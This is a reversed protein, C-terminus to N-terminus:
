NFYRFMKFVSQSYTSHDNQFPILIFFGKFNPSKQYQIFSFNTEQDKRKTQKLVLERCQVDSVSTIQLSIKRSTDEKLRIWGIRETEGLVEKTYELM